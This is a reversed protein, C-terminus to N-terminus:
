WVLCVRNGNEDEHGDNIIWHKMFFVANLQAKPIKSSESDMKEARALTRYEDIVEDMLELVKKQAFAKGAKFGVDYNDQLMEDIIESM